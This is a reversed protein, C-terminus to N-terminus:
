AFMFWKFLATKPPLSSTHQYNLTISIITIIVTISRICIAYIYILSSIVTIQKRWLSGLSSHLPILPARGTSGAGPELSFSHHRADGGGTGRGAIWGVLIPSPRSATCIDPLLLLWPCGEDWAEELKLGLGGSVMLGERGLRWVLWSCYRSFTTSFDRQFCWNAQGKWEGTSAM